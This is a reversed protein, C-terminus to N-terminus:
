GKKGKRERQQGKNRKIDKLRNERAYYFLYQQAYGAYEGFTERAFNEITKVSTEEKFYLVEMVRKVWVDVPFADLKGMAFFVICNGVKPGVGPYATIANMCASRNHDMYSELIGPDEAIRKTSEKVYRARYGLGLRKLEEESAKALEEPTPFAYRMRGRYVGIPKGFSKAIGEISGRIRKINNNSSIIFTIFTEFPEQKLIRIGKGFDVAKKMVPDNKTLIEQIRGYDTDLDFYSRWISQFDEEDAGLLLLDEEKKIVEIVRGFAVLLFHTRSIEEWRFAQGCHFLDGPHFHKQHKLLIGEETVAANFNMMPTIAEKWSLAQYSM